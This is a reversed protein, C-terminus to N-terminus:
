LRHSRPRDGRGASTFQRVGILELWIRSQGTLVLDGRLGVAITEPESWPEKASNVKQLSMRLLVSGAPEESSPAPPLGMKGSRLSDNMAIRTRARASQKATAARVVALGGSRGCGVVALKLASVGVTSKTGSTSGRLARPYVSPSSHSGVRAASRFEAQRQM